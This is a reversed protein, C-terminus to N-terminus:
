QASTDKQESQTSLWSTPIPAWQATTFVPVPKGHKELMADSAESSPDAVAGLETQRNSKVESLHRGRMNGGCGIFGVKIKAM